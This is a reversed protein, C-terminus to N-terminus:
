RGRKIIELAKRADEPKAGDAIMRDYVTKDQGTLQSDNQGMETAAKQMRILMESEYEPSGIEIGKRLLEQRDKKVREYFRSLNKVRGEYESKVTGPGISPLITKMFELQKDSYQVGSLQKIINMSMMETGAKLNSFKQLADKSEKSPGILKGVLPVDEMWEQAWTGTHKVASAGFTNPPINNYVNMLEKVNDEAFVLDQQVTNKTPATPEQNLSRISGDSNFEINLGKAVKEVKPQSDLWKKKEEVAGLTSGMFELQQEFNSLPVSGLAKAQKPGLLKRGKAEKLIEQRLMQKEEPTKANQMAYMAYGVFNKKEAITEKKEDLLKALEKQQTVAALKQKELDLQGSGLAGQQALQERKFDLGQQFQNGQQVLQRQQQLLGRGQLDQSRETLYKQQDLARNGRNNALLGLGSQDQLKMKELALRQQNQQAAQLQQIAQLGLGGLNSLNGGQGAVSALAGFNPQPINLAM